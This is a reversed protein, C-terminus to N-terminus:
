IWSRKRAIWVALGSLILMLGTVIMFGNFGTRFFNLEFNMGMVGAILALLGMLVTVFTLARMTENTKQAIRATLLEFSGVVLNRANDLEDEAREYHLNLAEFHPKSEPQETAMFDPRALGYFVDRHSNLVRRLEAIRQRAAVMTELLGPTTQKGLISVEVADIDHNLVEVARFYSNLLWDLLSAVFSESSLAGITSDGKERSRLEDLFEIGAQHVTVVYNPGAILTMPRTVLPAIANDLSVAQATLRFRSGYNALRPRASAGDAKPVKLFDQKCALLKMVQQEEESTASSLDIWLLQRSSLSELSITAVDPTQDPEDASYLLAKIAMRHHGHISDSRYDCADPALRHDPRCATLGGAM